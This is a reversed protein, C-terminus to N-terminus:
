SGALKGAMLLVAQLAILSVGILSLLMGLQLFLYKANIIGENAAVVRVYAEAIAAGADGERSALFEGTVLHTVDMRQFRRVAFVLFGFVFSLVLSLFTLLALLYDLRDIGQDILLRLISAIYISLLVGALSVLAVARSTLLQFREGEEEYVSRTAQFVLKATGADPVPSPEASEM